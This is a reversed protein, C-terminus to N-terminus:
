LVPYYLTFSSIEIPDNPQLRLFNKAIAFLYHIGEFCDRLVTHPIDIMALINFVDLLLEMPVQGINKCLQSSLPLRECYKM